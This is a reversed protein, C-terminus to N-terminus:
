DNAKGSKRDTKRLEIPAFNDTQRLEAHGEKVLELSAAFTSATASRWKAPDDDWGDPLWSSIDTWQGAFGLLGRMRGLAEEMTYVLDSSCM